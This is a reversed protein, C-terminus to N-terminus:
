DMPHSATAGRILVAYQFMGSLPMANFPSDPGELRVLTVPGGGAALLGPVFWTNSFSQVRYHGYGTQALTEAKEYFPQISLVKGSVPSGPQNLYWAFWRKDELPTQATHNAGWRGYCRERAFTPYLKLFTEYIAFDRNGATPQFLNEIIIEFDTLRPGLLRSWETRHAAFHDPADHLLKTAEPADIRNGIDTFRKVTAAISAPTSRGADISERVWEGLAWIAFNPNHETDVGVFRVRDSPPLSANWHRFRLLFDRYERNWAPTGRLARFFLDLLREDGTEFYRNLLLAAAHGVEGLYVRVGANHHLWQLLALDLENNIPMGHSEGLLIIQKGATDLLDARFAAPSSLDLPESHSRVFAEMRSREARNPGSPACALGTFLWLCLAFAGATRTPNQM